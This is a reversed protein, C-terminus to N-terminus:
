KEVYKLIKKINNVVTVDTNRQKIKVTEERSNVILISRIGARKAGELDVQPNNGVFVAEKPSVDLLKLAKNFIKPSPKCVKEESSVLVANFYNIIELRKLINLIHDYSYSSNSIIGMLLSKNQLKRLTEKVSPKLVVYKLDYKYITKTILPILEKSDRAKIGIKNLLHNLFESLDFETESVGFQEKWDKWMETKLEHYFNESFSYGMKSCLKHVEGSIRKELEAYDMTYTILTEGLDFIVAKLTDFKKM